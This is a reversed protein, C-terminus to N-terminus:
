DTEEVKAADLPKFYAVIPPGGVGQTYFIGDYDESIGELMETYERGNRLGYTPHGYGNPNEETKKATYGNPDNKLDYIRETDVDVSYLDGRVGTSKERRAPDLYYFSRPHQSRIWENRSYVKRRNPGRSVTFFHPDINFMPNGRASTSYHFLRVKGPKFMSAFDVLESGLIPADDSQDETLCKKSLRETIKAVVWKANISLDKYTEMNKVEGLTFPRNRIRSMFEAERGPRYDGLPAKVGYGPFDSRNTGILYAGEGGKPIIAVSDQCYEEGLDIVDQIFEPRDKLNTVFWSVEKVEVERESDGYNEVYTGIIKTVGYDKHEGGKTAPLRNFGLLRAHLERNRAINIRNVSGEYQESDPVGHPLCYNNPDESPNNRYATIIAADHELMHQHLRTLSSENLDRFERWTNHFNSM